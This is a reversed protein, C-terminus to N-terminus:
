ARGTRGPARVRETGGGAAVPGGLRKDGLRTRPDARHRHRGRLPGPQGRRLGRGRGARPQRRHGGAPADAPSRTPPSCCAPWRPTWWGSCSWPSRAGDRQDIGTRPATPSRATPGCRPGAAGSRTSCPTRAARREPLHGAPRRLQRRAPGRRHRLLPRGGARRNRPAAYAERVAAAVPAPRPRCPSRRRIRGAAEALATPDTHDLPGLADVPGELGADDAMAAYGDTTLCFGGPVPLGAALLLGLNLAKGGVQALMGPGIGALEILLREPESADM